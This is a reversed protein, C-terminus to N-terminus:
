WNSFIRNFIEDALNNVMQENLQAEAQQLSMGSSFPFNRTISTEFNKKEDLRNKFVINVSVNLNNMSSQRDAIGSTSVSYDSITGSIEYHAEGNTQSLRTQNVIKQRLKESLRPSLLPNIYRARNEIYSVKVTKVEPPISVDRMSFRCTGGCFLVLCATPLLNRFATSTTLTTNKSNETSPGSASASTQPPM